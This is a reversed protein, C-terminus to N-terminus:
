SNVASPAFMLGVVNRHCHMVRMTVPENNLPGIIKRFKVNVVTGVPPLSGNEIIVQAGGDSIDRTFGIVTGFSPHSLEVKISTITREYRRREQVPEGGIKLEKSYTIASEGFM